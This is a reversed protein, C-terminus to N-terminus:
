AIWKDLHIDGEADAAIYETPVEVNDHEDKFAKLANYRSQWAATSFTSTGPDFEFVRGELLKHCAHYLKEEDFLRRQKEAWQGTTVGHPYTSAVNCHGHLIKSQM